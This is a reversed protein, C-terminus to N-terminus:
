KRAWERDWGDRLCLNLSSGKFENKGVEAEFLRRDSGARRDEGRGDRPGTREGFRGQGIPKRQRGGGGLGTESHNSGCFHRRSQKAQGANQQFPVMGTNRDELIHTRM